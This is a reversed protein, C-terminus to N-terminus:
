EARLLKAPDASVAKRAPVMASVLGSLAMTVVVGVILGPQAVVMALNKDVLPYDKALQAAVSALDANAQPATVATRL